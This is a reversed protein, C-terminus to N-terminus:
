WKLAEGAHGYNDVAVVALVAASFGDDFDEGAVGQTDGHFHGSGPGEFCALVHEYGYGGDAEPCRMGEGDGPAALGFVEVRFFAENHGAM